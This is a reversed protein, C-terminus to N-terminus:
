VQHGEEADLDPPAQLLRAGLANAEDHAVRPDEVHLDLYVQQPISSRPWDPPVNPALQM